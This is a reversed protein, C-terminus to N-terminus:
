CQRLIHCAGLISKRNSQYHQNGTQRTSIGSCCNWHNVQTSNNVLWVVALYNVSSIRVLGSQRTNDTDATHVSTAVLCSLKRNQLRWYTSSQVTAFHFSPGSLVFSQEREMKLCSLVIKDQQWNLECRRCRHSLVLCNQRTQTLPTLYAYPLIPQNYLLWLHCEATFHSSSHTANTLLGAM